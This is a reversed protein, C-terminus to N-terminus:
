AGIVVKGTARGSELRRYADHAEDLAFMTDIVPRVRNATVAANMLELGARSGVYFRRITVPAALLRADVSGAGLAVALAIQGDAACSAISRALTDLTGTEVVLDAGGDTVARVERDWDPQTIRNIVVDAGLGTLAAAKDDTSTIAVVRAGMLRAFQVAFLAVGGTGITLVSDGPLVRRPGTLASWATLGACPLTAAEEFSLHPPIPVLASEDALVCDALTGDRSCGFQERAYDTRFPGDLWRPFYTTMVQDGPQVTQVGSGITLVTGAGDAVPVVRERAPVPYARNLILLDRRNLARAHLRVLVQGPGPAPEPEQAAVIGDISGFTEIRFTRV